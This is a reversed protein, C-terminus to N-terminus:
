VVSVAISKVTLVSPLMVTLVAPLVSRTSVSSTMVAAILLASSVSPRLLSSLPAFSVSVLVSPVDSASTVTVPPPVSTSFFALLM